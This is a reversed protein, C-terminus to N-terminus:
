PQAGQHLTMFYEKVLQRHRVAVGEPAASQGLVFETHASTSELGVNSQQQKTEAYFWTKRATNAAEQGEAGIAEQRLQVALPAVKAGVVADSQADGTVAGAKRGERGSPSGESGNMGAQLVNAGPAEAIANESGSSPAQRRSGALSSPRDRAVAQRLQELAYAAKSWHEQAT